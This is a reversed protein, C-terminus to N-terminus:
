CYIHVHRACGVREFVDVTGVPQRSECRKLSGPIRIINEPVVVGQGCAVWLLLCLSWTPLIGPQAHCMILSLIEFIILCTFYLFMAVQYPKSYIMMAMAVVHVSGQWHGQLVM